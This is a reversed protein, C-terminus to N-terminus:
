FKSIAQKNILEEKCVAVLENTKLKLSLSSYHGPDVLLM